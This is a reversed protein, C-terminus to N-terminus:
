VMGPLKLMVLRTERADLEGAAAAPATAPATAPSSAPAPTSSPTTTTNQRDCGFAALALVGIAFRKNMVSM